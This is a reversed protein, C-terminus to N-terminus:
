EGVTQQPLNTSWKASDGDMFVMSGGAAEGSIHESVKHLLGAVTDISSVEVVVIVKITPATM